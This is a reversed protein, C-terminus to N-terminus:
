QMLRGLTWGLVFWASVLGLALVAVGQWPTLEDAATALRNIARAIPNTREAGPLRGTVRSQQSFVQNARQAHVQADAVARQYLMYGRLARQFERIQQCEACYEGGSCIDDGCGECIRLTDPIEPTIM